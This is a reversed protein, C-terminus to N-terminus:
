RRCSPTVLLYTVIDLHITMAAEPVSIQEASTSDLRDGHAYEQTLRFELYATQTSHMNSRAAM